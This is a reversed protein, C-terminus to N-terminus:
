IERVQKNLPNIHVLKKNNDLAYKVIDATGGLGKAKQNNWVAFMITSMNVVEKGAEFFAVESPETFDLLITNQANALMTKYNEYQSKVVFTKEYDKSPIVATYPIRDKKLIEAYIQDAGSALSTFGETVHYKKVAESLTLRVWRITSDDGLDQHGTIGVKM